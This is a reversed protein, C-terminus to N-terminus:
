KRKKLKEEIYKMLWVAWYPATMSRL